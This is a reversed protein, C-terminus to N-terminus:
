KLMAMMLNDVFAKAERLFDFEALRDDLWQPSTNNDFVSWSIPKDNHDRSVQLLWRGDKSEVGAFTSRKWEINQMIAQKM